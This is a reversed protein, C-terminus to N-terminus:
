VIEPEPSTVTQPWLPVFVTTQLVEALRVDPEPQEVLESYKRLLKLSDRVVLLVHDCVPPPGAMPALM